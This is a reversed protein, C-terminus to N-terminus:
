HKVPLLKSIRRLDQSDIEGNDSANELRNQDITNIDGNRRLNVEAYSHKASLRENNVTLSPALIRDNTRNATSGSIMGKALEKGTQEEFWLEVSDSM